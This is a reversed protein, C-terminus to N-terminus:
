QSELNRRSICIHFIHKSLDNNDPYTVTEASLESRHLILNKTIMSRSETGTFLMITVQDYCRSIQELEPGADPVTTVNAAKLYTTGLYPLELDPNLVPPIHFWLSKPINYDSTPLLEM